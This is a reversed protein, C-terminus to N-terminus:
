IAVKVWYGSSFPEYGHNAAQISPGRHDVAIDAVLYIHCDDRNNWDTKGSTEGAV